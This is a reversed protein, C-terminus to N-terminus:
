RSRRREHGFLRRSCFIWGSECGSVAIGQKPGARGAMKLALWFGRSRLPSSAAFGSQRITWLSCSPLQNKLLAGIGELLANLESLSRQLDVEPPCIELCQVYRSHRIAAAKGRRAFAIVQFGDDVLSWVVEPAALAEAFGVLVLDRSDVRASLAPRPSEMEAAEDRQWRGPVM